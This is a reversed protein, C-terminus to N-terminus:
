YDLASGGVSPSVAAVNRKYAKKRAEFVAWQVVMWYAYVLCRLEKTCAQGRYTPCQLFCDVEIPSM